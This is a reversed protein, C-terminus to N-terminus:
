RFSVEFLNELELMSATGESMGKLLSLAELWHLYTQRLFLDISGDEQFDDKANKNPDCDRLHDIWYVCSYRAAALPDPEPVKVKSIPFGPAGLGYIDRRLTNSMAQLSRLFVTHHMDEIGSAFVEDRAGKLLFDKASQHVFSVTRERLTLFSGCLAIIEALAEYNGHVGAPMDVLAALEDLTIPRRVVSVVALIGKLLRAHRSNCVQGMMRKYLTDLGPPFTTLLEEVEWGSVNALEQCVLAVWLFTGHSNASLHCEVADRTGNSYNNRKALGEVKFQIYTTVAASVSDENLELCLRVKQTAADLGKEISPWHRSSVVWKVSPYISSKQAILDLLLGQDQTCEDLADIILYARQLRPDDLMSTFITSLVVWSNPGEFREKGFGDYSKRLHSILAPQQIVLMYILGRLVATANNIRHDTAQCFFFSINASPATNKLMDIIGCLLM